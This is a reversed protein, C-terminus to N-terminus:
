EGHQEGKKEADTGSEETKPKEKVFFVCILYAAALLATLGFAVYLIVPSVNQRLLTRCLMLAICLAVTLVAAAKNPQPRGM